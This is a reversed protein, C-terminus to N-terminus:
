ERRDLLDPPPSPRGGPNDAARGPDPHHPQADADDKERREQVAVLRELLENLKAIQRVLLPVTHENMLRTPTSQYEPCIRTFARRQKM